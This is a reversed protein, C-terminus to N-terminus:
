QTILAPSAVQGADLRRHGEVIASSL